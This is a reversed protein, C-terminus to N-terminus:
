IRSVKSEDHTEPSRLVYEDIDNAVGMGNNTTEDGRPKELVTEDTVDVDTRVIPEDGLSDYPKGLKAEVIRNPEAEIPSVEGNVTDKEPINEGADEATDYGKMTEWPKEDMEKQLVNAREDNIEKAFAQTDNQSRYLLDDMDKSDIVFRGDDPQPVPDGDKLGKKYKENDEASQVYSVEKPEKEPEDKVKLGDDEDSKENESKNEPEEKVKLGDDNDSKNTDSKKEPTEKVQVEQEEKPQLNEKIENTEFM